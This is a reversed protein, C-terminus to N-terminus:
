ALRHRPREEVREEPREPAAVVAGRRTGPGDHFAGDGSRRVPEARWGQGRPVCACSASRSAGSRREADAHVLAALRRGEASRAGTRPRMGCASRRRPARAARGTVGHIWRRPASRPREGDLREIRPGRARCRRPRMARRARCPPAARPRPRAHAGRAADRVRPRARSAPRTGCGSSAAAISAAPQITVPKQGSAVRRALRRLPTAHLRLRRRRRPRERPRGRLRRAAREAVADNSTTTAPPPTPPSARAVRRARRAAADGDDLAGLRRREPDALGEVPLRRDEEPPEAEVHFAPDLLALGGALAPATTQSRRALRVHLRLDAERRREAEEHRRTPRACGVIWAFRSSISTSRKSAARAAPM